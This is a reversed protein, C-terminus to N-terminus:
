ESCAWCVIGLMKALAAAQQQGLDSLPWLDEAVHPDPASQAHRILVLQITLEKSKNEAM